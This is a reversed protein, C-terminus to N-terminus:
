YSHFLFLPQIRKKECVLRSSCAFFFVFVFCGACDCVEGQEVSLRQCAGRHNRFCSLVLVLVRRVLSSPMGCFAPRGSNLRMTASIKIFRMEVMLCHTEWGRLMNFEEIPRHPRTCSVPPPYQVSYQAGDGDCM